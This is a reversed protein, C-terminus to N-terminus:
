VRFGKETHLMAPSFTEPPEFTASGIITRILIRRLIPVLVVIRIRIRLIIVTMAIVIVIVMVIVVIIIVVVIIVHKGM